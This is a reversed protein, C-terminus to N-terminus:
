GLVFLTGVVLSFLATLAGILIYFSGKQKLKRYGFSSFGAVVLNSLFIGGVFLILFVMGRVGGGIGLLTTLAAVQTPTEAGVGHIAGIVFSTRAAYKEEKVKPHEHSLNFNHLLKHYGFQLADFILMWRSKIKFRQGERVISIIVYIGLLILTVGVIKGFLMDLPESLRQGLTLVLLGLVVVMAGHGLAYLVAYLLGRARSSQSSTIDTIAAIHDIDIGHRIGSVLGFSLLIALSFLDEM